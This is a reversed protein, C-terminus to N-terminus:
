IILGGIKILKKINKYCIIEVIEKSSLHSNSNYTLANKAIVKFPSNTIKM